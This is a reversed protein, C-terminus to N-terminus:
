NENQRYPKKQKPKNATYEGQHQDYHYNEPEYRLPFKRFGGDFRDKEVTLISDAMGETDEGDERKREKELNRWLSM